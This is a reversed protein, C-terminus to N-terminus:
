EVQKYDAALMINIAEEAIKCYDGKKMSEMNGSSRMMQGVVEFYKKAERIKATNFSVDNDCYMTGTSPDYKSINVKADPLDDGRLAQNLSYILSEKSMNNSRIDAM